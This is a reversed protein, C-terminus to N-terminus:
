SENGKKPDPKKPLYAPPLGSASYEDLIRKLLPPLENDAPESDDSDSDGAPTDNEQPELSARHGDANASRDLPYIPALITGGHPDVLDVRSLDWRAYRVVVERFHRYRTPIEFRAGELEPEIELSRRFAKEAAMPNNKQRYIKGLFFYGAYADPFYEVFQTFIGHAEEWQEDAMYLNGLLLYIDENHPDQALIQAYVAKAEDNQKRSQFLRGILNLAEVDDPHDAILDELIALAADNDKLQLYLVATERKLLSSDPDLAMAKHMLELAAQHEGQSRLLQAQTYYYYVNPTAAPDDAASPQRSAASTMCGTLLAGTLLIIAGWEFWPNKM